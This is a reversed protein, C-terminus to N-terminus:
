NKDRCTECEYSVRIHSIKNRKFGLIKQLESLDKEKLAPEYANGCLDCLWSMHLHRTGCTSHQCLSVQGQNLEHVIKIDKLVKVSRYISAEDVQVGRKLLAQYIQPVTMAKDTSTLLELLARRQDTIRLGENKMLHLLHDLNESIKATACTM